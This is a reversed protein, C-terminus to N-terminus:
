AALPELNVRYGLSELRQVLRREVRQRGRQDFYNHSPLVERSCPDAISLVHKFEEPRQERGNQSPYARPLVEERLGRLPPRKLPTDGHHAILARGAAAM